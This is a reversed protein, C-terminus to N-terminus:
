QKQDSNSSPTGTTDQAPNKATNPNPAKTKMSGEGSTDSTSSSKKHMGKKGSKGMVEIRQARNSSPDFSARVQAGERISSLNSSSSQGSSDVIQTSDDVKLTIRDGQSSNIVITKGDSDM